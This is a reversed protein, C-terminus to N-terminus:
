PVQFFASSGLLEARTVEEAMSAQKVSGRRVENLNEVAAGRSGENDNDNEVVSSEAQSDTLQFSELDPTPDPTMQSRGKKVAPWSFCLKLDHIWPLWMPSTYILMNFFGQLPLLVVIAILLSIYLPQDKKTDFYPVAGVLVTPLYVFVFSASYLVGTELTRQSLPTPQMNNGVSADEFQWRLSRAEIRRVTCYLFGM